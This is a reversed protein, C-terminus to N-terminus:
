RMGNRLEQIHVARIAGGPVLGATWSIPPLGLTRRAEDLASRLELLHVARMRIPPSVLPDSFTTNALGARERLAQVAARLELLHIAKIRTVGAILPDDTFSIVFPAYDTPISLTRQAVHSSSDAVRVAFPASQIRALTGTITATSANLSL